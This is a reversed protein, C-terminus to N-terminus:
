LQYGSRVRELILGLVDRAVAQHTTYKGGVVTLVNGEEVLQVDRSMSSMTSKRGAYALPRLGAYVDVIDDAKLKVTSFSNFSSVLYQIDESTAKVNDLDGTYQTDTTGIITSNNYPITFFM